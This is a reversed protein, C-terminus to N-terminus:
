IQVAGREVFKYGHKKVLRMVNGIPEHLMEDEFIPGLGQLVLAKRAKDQWVIMLEQDDKKFTAWTMPLIYVNDKGMMKKKLKM